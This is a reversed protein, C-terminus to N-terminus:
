HIRLSRHEIAAVESDSAKPDEHIGALCGTAVRRVCRRLSRDPLSTALNHLRIEWRKGDDYSLSWNDWHGDEKEAVTDLLELPRANWSEELFLGLLKGDLSPASVLKLPRVTGPRHSFKLEGQPSKVNLNYPM